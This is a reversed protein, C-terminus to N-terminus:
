WIGGGAEQVAGAGAPIWLLAGFRYRRLRLRHAHQSGEALAHAPGGSAPPLSAPPLLCLAQHSSRLTGAHAFFFVSSSVGVFLEGRWVVLFCSFFFFVVEMGSLDKIKCIVETASALMSSCLGSRVEPLASACAEAFAPLETRKKPARLDLPFRPSVLPFGLLRQGFMINHHSRSRKFQGGSLLLVFLDLVLGGDSSNVQVLTLM